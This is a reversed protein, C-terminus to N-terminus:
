CLFVRWFRLFIVLCPTSFIITCVYLPLLITHQSFSITIFLFFSFYFWVLYSIIFIIVRLCILYSFFLDLHLARSRFNEFLEWMNPEWYFSVRNSIYRFMYMSCNVFYMFMCNTVSRFMFNTASRFMYSTYRFICNTIFKFGGIEM